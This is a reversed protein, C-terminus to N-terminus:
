STTELEPLSVEVRICVDDTHTKALECQAVTPLVLEARYEGTELAILLMWWM